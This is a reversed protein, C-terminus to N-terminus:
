AIEVAEGDFHFKYLAHAGLAAEGRELSKGGPKAGVGELGSPDEGSLRCFFRDRLTTSM